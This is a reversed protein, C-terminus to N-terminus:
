HWAPRAQTVKVRARSHAETDPDSDSRFDSGVATTQVPTVTSAARYRSSALTSPTSATGVGKYPTHNLVTLVTGLPGHQLVTGARNLVTDFRTNTDLM